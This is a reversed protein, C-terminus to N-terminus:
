EQFSDHKLFQVLAPHNPDIKIARELANGADTLQGSKQYVQQLALWALVHTSDANLIRNLRHEASELEDLDTELTALHFQLNVNNPRLAQAILYRTMALHLKGSRRLFIAYDIQAQFNQPQTEAVNALLGARQDLQRLSDSEMLLSRALNSFGQRDLAQGLIYRSEADYPYKHVLPELLAITREVNGFQLLLRALRVQDAFHNPELQLARETFKLSESFRGQQELMDAFSSYAPRYLSDLTISERFASSADDYQNLAQYASGTAHWSMASPHNQISKLFESLARQYARQGYYINGLNHHVGPYDPELDIVTLYAIEAKDWQQLEFYVRGQLFYADSSHSNLSLASDALSLSTHYDRLELAQQSLRILSSVDAQDQQDLCGVIVVIMSIGIGRLIM